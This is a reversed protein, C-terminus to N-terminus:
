SSTFGNNGARSQAVDPTAVAAVAVAVAIVVMVVAAVIEVVVSAVDAEVALDVRKRGRKM